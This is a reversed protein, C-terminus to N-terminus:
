FNVNVGFTVTRNFGVDNFVDGNFSQAPNMGKRASFLALNEASAYIRLGKLDLTKLIRPSFNYAINVNRIALYSADVLWRSSAANFATTKSNDMRPVNTVQGPTTWRDLIDVSKAAGYGGSSMLAAYNYDYAKGGISYNLQVSVDVGFIKFSPTISGFLDPISTGAWDFKAKAQNSTVISGNPLIKCDTDSWTQIYNGNEDKADDFLYLANGNDPDVGYWQRLWYDYISGGEVRKFNGSIIGNERNEEPLKTIKNVYTTANLNLAFSFNKTDIIDGTIDLEWGRNYVNGINRDQTTYGTSPSLPVSFILDKSKKNFWDVNGRLRNGFMNFELGLDTQITTEWKLFPNGPVTSQIYGPEASNNNYNYLVQWAYYSIGGDNGNLGYSARFKLFDIWTLSKMFNEKDIRWGGGVSWFNGWRMASEFKSSGDRRYSGEATYRGNEFSYTARALFGEVAHNDLYSYLSNTTTFNILETNGPIIEGQRFGYFESYSNKYSEHAVMLNIDHKDFTKSYTLIQQNTWTYRLSSEKRSRGQPAGDGVLKNEYTSSLFNNIDFSHNLRLKFDKLFSFETYARAQITNRQFDIINLMHEAIGHRGNNQTRAAYNVGGQSVAAGLDWLKNGQEDLIYEGTLRDHQYVPYIPGMNRAFYIPNAYGTNSDTNASSSTNYSANLNVGFTVWKRPTFNVNARASIRDYNTKKLWGADKTLGVSMYYDTTESGGNASVMAETRSGLREVPSYWDLDDGWLLSTANPNLKSAYTAPDYQMVDGNAIGTFPNYGLNSVIGNSTTGSALASAQDIPRSTTILSNRLSEWMIPYYQYADIRDYEPLGRQSFGQTVTASINLKEKKGKKTTIMVVGNSGRSGYLATSAADKLINISEIDAPNINAMAGNYPAGDLVILPASSYNISGFGRIRIAPDSGPQGYSTNVQVGASTGSLAALANTVPRKEISAANVSSIAGTVSSKKATGYAVMVVEDLALADQELEVNITTRGSIQVELDKYGIFSLVLTGNSPANLAYTGNDMTTTGTTTGKVQIGVFPLPTGTGKETVTGTVRINQAVLGQFVFLLGTFIMIFKKM